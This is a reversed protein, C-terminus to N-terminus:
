GRRSPWTCARLARPEHGVRRWATSDIETRRGASLPVTRGPNKGIRRLHRCNRAPITLMAGRRLAATGCWGISASYSEPWCCSSRYATPAPCRSLLGAPGITISSRRCRGRTSGAGAARSRWAFFCRSACRICAAPKWRPRVLSKAIWIVFFVIPVGAITAVTFLRKETGVLPRSGVPLSPELTLFCMLPISAAIPLAMLARISFRRRGAVLRLVLLPVFVNVFALGAAGLIGWRGGFWKLWAVWPLPRAWRPDDPVRSARVLTGVTPAIAGEKTTPMAKRCVTAGLGNAILIPPRASDGPDLLEPEFQAPIEVLPAQGM